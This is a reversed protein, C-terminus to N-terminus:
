AEGCYGGRLEDRVVVGEDLQVVRRRLRDV